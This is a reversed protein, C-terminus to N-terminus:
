DVRPLPALRDHEPAGGELLERLELARAREERRQEAGQKQAKRLGSRERYDMDAHERAGWTDSM